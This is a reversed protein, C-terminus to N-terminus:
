GPFEKGLHLVRQVGDPSDEFELVRRVTSNRTVKDGKSITVDANFVAVSERYQDHFTQGFNRLVDARMSVPFCRYPVAAFTLKQGLHDAAAKKRRIISTYDLAM